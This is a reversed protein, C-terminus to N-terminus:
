AALEAAALALLIWWWGGVKPYFVLLDVTQHAALAVSAGFAGMVFPLRTGRRAYAAIATYLLYLNALLLPIGGEVLSQLYLSNAHTRVQTIGTVGVEREFNGAGIGFFPHARWLQIAARWLLPRTGVGGAYASPSLDWFRSLGITHALVGWVSAVGAGAVLGGLMAALGARLPRRALYAVAAVGGIAGIAGGRSFTLVDTFVIAFLTVLVELGSSELAFALVAPLAIDFYGALQNPGELPGAIRPTPHGNMLLVSPAGVVEQALALTCVAVTTALITARVFRRDPDLRYAAFVLAFILLYEAMKLSERVVADHYTAQALSLITACLVAGGAIFFARPGPQALSRFANHHVWLGAALALLVTKPVTMMSISLDQYLAFPTAAILACVGFVPRRMTALTVAAFLAAFLLLSLPDPIM